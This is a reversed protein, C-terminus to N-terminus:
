QRKPKGLLFLGMVMMTMTAPEPTNVTMELTSDGYGPGTGIDYALGSTLELRYDHSIDVAYVSHGQEPMTDVSSDYSAYLLDTSTELDTLKISFSSSLWDGAPKSISYDYTWDLVITDTLPTFDIKSISDMAGGPHQGTEVNNSAIFYDDAGAFLGAGSSSILYPDASSDNHTIYGSGSVDYGPEGSMFLRNDQQLIDIGTIQAVAPFSLFSICLFVFVLSKKM